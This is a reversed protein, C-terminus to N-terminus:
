ILPQAKDFLLKAWRENTKIGPHLLDRGFDVMPWERGQWPIEIIPVNALKELLIKQYKTKIDFYKLRDGLLIFDKANTDSTWVGVSEINDSEEIFFRTSETWQIVILKPKKDFKLLWSMLNHLTIDNGTGGIGMNYVDTHLLQALIQSYRLDAELAIGETYSCGACLIYNDFDLDNVEKTRHGLNNRKYSIPHKAYYWNPGLKKLNNQFHTENDRSRSFSMDRFEDSYGFFDNRFCYM